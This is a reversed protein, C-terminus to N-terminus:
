GESLDQVLTTCEACESLHAEFRSREEPELAGLVYPAALDEFGSM